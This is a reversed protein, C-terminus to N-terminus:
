AGDTVFLLRGLHDADLIFVHNLINETRLGVEKDLVCRLFDDSHIYGKMFIHAKGSSVLEVAYRGANVPDAINVIEISNLDLNHKEANQRILREDGTIVATAINEDRAKCVALLTHEDTGSAVALKKVSFSRIEERVQHLNKIM